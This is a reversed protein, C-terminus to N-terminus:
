KPCVHSGTIEFTEDFNMEADNFVVTVRCAYKNGVLGAEVPLNFQPTEGMPRAVRQTQMISDMRVLHVTIDQLCTDVPCLIALDDGIFFDSLNHRPSPM